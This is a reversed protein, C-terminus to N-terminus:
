SSRVSPRALSVQYALEGTSSDNVSRRLEEKQEEMERYKQRMEDNPEFWAWVFEPFRSQGSAGALGVGSAGDPSCSAYASTEADHGLFANEEIRAFLIARM